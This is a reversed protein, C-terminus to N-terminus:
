DCTKIFDSEKFYILMKSKMIKYIAFPKTTDMTRRCNDAPNVFQIETLLDKNVHTIRKIIVGYEATPCQARFIAIVIENEFDVAPVAETNIMSENWLKVWDKSTRVIYIGPTKKQYNYGNKILKFEYEQASLNGFIFYFLFIHLLLKM